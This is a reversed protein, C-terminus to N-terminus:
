PHTKPAAIPSLGRRTAARTQFALPDATFPAPQRIALLGGAAGSPIVRHTM